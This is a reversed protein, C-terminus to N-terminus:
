TNKAYEPYFIKRTYTIQFSNEWDIAQGKVTKISCSKRIKIIGLKDIINM